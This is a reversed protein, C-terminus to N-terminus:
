QHEGTNLSYQQSINIEVVEIIRQLQHLVRQMTKEESYIVINFHSLGKQNTEFVSLQEINLRQRAFVSAMRQLVRLTNETMASIVYINKM